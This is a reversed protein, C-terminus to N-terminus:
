LLLAEIDKRINELREFDDEVLVELADEVTRYGEMVHHFFKELEVKTAAKKELDDWDEEEGGESELVCMELSLKLSEFVNYFERAKKLVTQRSRVFRKKLKEQRPIYTKALYTQLTEDAQQIASQTTRERTLLSDTKSSRSGREAELMRASLDSMEGRLIELAELLEKEREQLEDMREHMEALGYEEEEGEASAQLELIRDEVQLKRTELADEWISTEYDCLSRMASVALVPMLNEVVAYVQADLSGFDIGDMLKLQRRENARKEEEEALEAYGAPTGKVTSSGTAEALANFEHSVVLRVM